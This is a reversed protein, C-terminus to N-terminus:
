PDARDKSPSRMVPALRVTFGKNEIRNQLQTTIDDAIGKFASGPEYDDVVVERLFRDAALDGQWEINHETLSEELATNMM